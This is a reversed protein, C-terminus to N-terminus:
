ADDRGQCIFMAVNLGDELVTVGKGGVRPDHVLAGRDMVVAHAVEDDVRGRPTGLWIYPGRFHDHSTTSHGAINICLLWMGRAHLWAKAAVFGISPDEDEYDFFDPVQEYELELITAVCCRFCDRNTRMFVKIM